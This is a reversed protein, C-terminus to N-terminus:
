CRGVRSPAWEPAAKLDGHKWAPRSWNLAAALTDERHLEKLRANVWPLVLGALWELRQGLDVPAGATKDRAEGPLAVPYALTVSSGVMGRRMDWAQLLRAIEAEDLSSLVALRVWKFGRDKAWAALASKVM